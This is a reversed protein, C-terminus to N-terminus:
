LCILLYIDETSIKMCKKDKNLRQIIYEQRCSSIFISLMKRHLQCMSLIRDTIIIKTHAVYVTDRM